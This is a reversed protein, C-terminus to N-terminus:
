LKSAPPPDQPAKDLFNGNKKTDKFIDDAWNQADIRSSLVELNKVCPVKAKALGIKISKFGWHGKKVVCIIHNKKHTFKM